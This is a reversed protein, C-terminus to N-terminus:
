WSFEDLALAVIHSVQRGRITGKSMSLDTLEIEHSHDPRDIDVALPFTGGTGLFSAGLAPPRGALRKCNAIPLQCNAGKGM